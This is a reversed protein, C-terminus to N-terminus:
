LMSIDVLMFPQYSIYGRQYAYDFLNNLMAYFGQKYDESLNHKHYSDNEDYYGEDKYRGDTAYKLSFSSVRSRISTLTANDRFSITSSEKGHALSQVKEESLYQPILASFYGKYKTQLAPTDGKTAIYEEFLESLTIPNPEVEQWMADVLRKNRANLAHRITVFNSWEESLKKGNPLTTNIRYSYTLSAAKKRVGDKSYTKGKANDHLNIIDYGTHEKANRYEKEFASDNKAESDYWVVAVSGNLINSYAAKGGTKVGDKVVNQVMVRFNDEGVLQKFLTQTKEPLEEFDTSYESVLEVYVPRNPNQERYELIANAVATAYGTNPKVRVWFKDFVTSGLDPNIFYEYDFLAKVLKKVKSGSKNDFYKETPGLFLYPLRRM